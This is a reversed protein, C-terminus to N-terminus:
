MKESLVSFLDPTCKELNKLFALGARVCCTLIAKADPFPTKANFAYWFQRGLVPPM